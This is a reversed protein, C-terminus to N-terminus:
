RPVAVTSPLQPPPLYSLNAPIRLPPYQVLARERPVPPARDFLGCGSLLAGAVLVTLLHRM